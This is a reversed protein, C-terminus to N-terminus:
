QDSVVDFRSFEQWPAEQELVQVVDAAPPGQLLWDHLRALRQPEACALVEVDGNTLNRVWGTVGLANARRKASARYFVGQVKGSIIYQKCQQSM